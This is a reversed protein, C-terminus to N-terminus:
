ARDLETKMLERDSTANKWLADLYFVTHYTVVRCTWSIGLTSMWPCKAGRPARRGSSFASGCPRSPVPSLKRGDRVPLSCHQSHYLSSNNLDWRVIHHTSCDSCFQALLPIPTGSRQVERLLRHSTHFFLASHSM